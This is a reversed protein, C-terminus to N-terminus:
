PHSNFKELRPWNKTRHVCTDKYESMTRRKERRLSEFEDEDTVSVRMELLGWM